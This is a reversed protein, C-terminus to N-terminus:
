MCWDSVVKGEYQLSQLTEPTILEGKRTVFIGEQDCEYAKKLHEYGERVDDSLPTLSNVFVITKQIDACLKATDVITQYGHTIIINKHNTTQIIDLLRDLDNEDLDRADKACLAIHEDYSM